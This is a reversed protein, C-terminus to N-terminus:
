ESEEPLKFIIIVPEKKVGKAYAIGEVTKLVVEEGIIEKKEDIQKLHVNKLFLYEKKLPIYIVKGAKGQYLSGKKTKISFSVNGDAIFKTPQHKKDTFVSVKSANLEDAGKLISVDGQFVSLGVKEDASFENAKIRLEQSLLSTLFLTLFVMYKM